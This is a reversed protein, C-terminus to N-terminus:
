SNHKLFIIKFYKIKMLTAGQEFKGISLFSDMYNEKLDLYDIKHKIEGIGKMIHIPEIKRTNLLDEVIKADYHSYKKGYNLMIERFAASDIDKTKLHNELTEQLKEKENLLESFFNDKESFKSNAKLLEKRKDENMFEDGFRSRKFFNISSSNKNDTRITSHM